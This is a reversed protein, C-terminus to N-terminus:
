KKEWGFDKALKEYRNKFDAWFEATEEPGMYKITQGTSKMIKKFSESEMGKKFAQHLREIRSKPTGKPAAISAFGEAIIDLGMEKFTPVEPFEEMRERGYAALVRAKKAKVYGVWQPSVPQSVADVHGGLLAAEAESGGGYPIHTFKVHESMSIQEMVFHQVTGVGATAYKIEGPHSKAYELLERFTKWPKDYPVMLGMNGVNYRIISAFDRLYDYDRIYLIQGLLGSSFCGGLTYGDPKQTKFFSLMVGSGSGPKDKVLIPQGLAPSAGECLARVTLESRSGASYGVWVTVPRTPFDDAWGIGWCFPVMLFITCLLLTVLEKRAM